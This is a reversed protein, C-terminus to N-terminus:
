RRRGLGDLAGLLHQRLQDVARLRRGPLVRLAEPLAVLHGALSSREKDLPISSAAIFRSVMRVSMLVDGPGVAGSMSSCARSHSALAPKWRVEPSPSGTTSTTNPRSSSPSM